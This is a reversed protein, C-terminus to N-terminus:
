RDRKKKRVDALFMRVVFWAFVAFGGFQLLFLIPSEFFYIYDDEEFFIDHMRGLWVGQVLQWGVFLLVAIVAVWAGFSDPKM